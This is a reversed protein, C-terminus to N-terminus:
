IDLDDLPDGPGSLDGGSGTAASTTASARRTLTVASGHTVFQGDIPVDLRYYPIPALMHDAVTQKDIQSQNMGPPSNLLGRAEPPSTPNLDHISGSIAAEWPQGHPDPRNECEIKCHAIEHFAVKALLVAYNELIRRDDLWPMSPNVYVESTCPVTESPSESRGEHGRPNTQAALIESRARSAFSGPLEEFNNGIAEFMTLSARRDEPNAPDITVLSTPKAVLYVIPDRQNITLGSFDPSGPSSPPIRNIRVTWRGSLLNAAEQFYEQLRAEFVAIVQDRISDHATSFPGTSVSQGTSTVAWPIYLPKVTFYHVTFTPM